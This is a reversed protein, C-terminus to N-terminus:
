EDGIISASCHGCNIPGDSNCEADQGAVGWGDNYNFLTSQLMLKFGEKACRHCIADGDDMILFREYGGPWAYPERIVSKLAQIRTRINSQM